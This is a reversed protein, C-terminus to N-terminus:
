SREMYCISRFGFLLLLQGLTKPFAEL